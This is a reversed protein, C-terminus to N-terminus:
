SGEKCELLRGSRLSRQVIAYGAKDVDVIVREPTGMDQYKENEEKCQQLQKFDRQIQLQMALKHEEFSLPGMSNSIHCGRRCM